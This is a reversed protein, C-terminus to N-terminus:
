NLLELLELYQMTKEECLRQKEEYLKSTEQLEQMSLSGDYLTKELTKITTELADIEQPLIELLRNQHYSLKTKKQIEQPKSEAKSDKSDKKSALLEMEFNAYEKLENEIELYASFSRHSEVIEGDGKFILLRQAIKDVFYRDHSVFILAGQFSQLYEELINITPIDLDNTPEDLILCDYAKTFLLALAVRNKEGGSLAGIKKDLFERPFLFNKLYGFIHMSKGCVEIHDGGFPCFTELLDKSDDLMERHQDFYGIKIDGCELSGSTQRIRGLFIKLLTSKGAGNKGVIAIKDRQLIRATFDKILIKEELKMHLAKAEFLVKKRNIGEERNFHKQERQLELTMKRIISPNTKALKRMQMIREKRGENRKVRARVGRALWEEEAKLHKLLTAHTKALSQLLAEKQHLYDTYGGKFNRIKGEEVEVVRTAIRDIFYRDHSIFVLTFNGKLLMEELFEVMQVDLHNTPEDLLLIDPKTLLLCALAVRKQEGGSLLNVFRDRLPELAFTELVQKIKSELDWANHHDLFNTIQAYANLLAKDEPANQLAQALEAYREKATNLYSLAELIAEKTTQGSKFNPKQILHKIELNGEVIRTGEDAEVDGSVIKLLTSKGAGNKGVIAVREGECINLSVDKLIVKYDYQKSINQLSLNSM